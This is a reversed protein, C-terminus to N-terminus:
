KGQQGGAAQEREDPARRPAASCLLAGLRFGSRHPEKQLSQAGFRPGLAPRAFTSAVNWEGRGSQAAVSPLAAPRALVSGSQRAARPGMAAVPAWFFFWLCLLGSNLARLCGVLVSLSACDTRQGQRVRAGGSPAHPCCCCRCRSRIERQNPQPATGPCPCFCASQVSALRTARRTSCRSSCHRKHGGRRRPTAQKLGSM